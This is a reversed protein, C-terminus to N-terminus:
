KSNELIRLIEDVKAIIKSTSPIEDTEKIAIALNVLLGELSKVKKTLDDIQKEKNKNENLLYGIVAGGLTILTTLIHESIM